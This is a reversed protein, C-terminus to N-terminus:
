GLITFRFNQDPAANAAHNITVSGKKFGSYWISPRATAASATLPTEGISSQFSIRPDTLTTTTGSAALSADITANLKGLLLRNITAIIRFQPANEELGIPSSQSRATM